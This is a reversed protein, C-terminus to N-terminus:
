NVGKAVSLIVKKVQESEIPKQLFDIAGAKIAEKLFTQTGASSAMVIKAEKDYALIDMVAEIGDKNPMVIDMFVLNPSHTKYQFVAEVGDCAEFVNSCGLSLICDKIKKRALISDDCVLIKMETVNM